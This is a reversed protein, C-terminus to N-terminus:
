KGTMPGASWKHEPRSMIADVVAEARDAAEGKDHARAHRILERAEPIFETYFREAVEFMGHWHTYDPGMMSAGHRARRGEHHWLLYWTWEIKEDFDPQTLLGEKRFSAIIAAGPSAFKENYLIVLSDYQRYFGNVYDDTHCHSCVEKMRTRKMEASDAVLAARKVPDQETVVKHAKDTDLPISIPPRNTWSIREGPDHTVRGGNRVNGSMHCTACTPAASYDKGLIWTDADLNLSEKLDRFAAGHKSEEFIEKQPHDPGMHCKGCSEPQRARRPSFDHRSHCAACSGKSGDLNLRGIGTNPWTQPHYQPKGNDDRRIRAVAEKVTPFGDADPKLDDLTVMSGDKTVLGVKSGHCQMCGLTVSALGDVQGMEGVPIFKKSHPDFLGRHGEVVEALRNDLSALINAGAAHHSAAFEAGETQHCKSCDRPTVVTAVFTGYHPFGDPDREDAAHCEVCGVGKEAHTSMHWHDIIAPTSQRHCDVCAKSSAPVSPLVTGDGSEKKKRVVEMWQVFLLSLLFLFGLSGILVRKTQLTM